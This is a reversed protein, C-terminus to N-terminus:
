KQVVCRDRIARVDIACVNTGCLGELPVRRVRRDVDKGTGNTSAAPTVERLSVTQVMAPKGNALTDQRAVSNCQMIPM